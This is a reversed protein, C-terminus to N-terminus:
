RRQNPQDFKIAVAALPRASRVSLRGAAAALYAAALLVALTGAVPEVEVPTDVALGEVVPQRM